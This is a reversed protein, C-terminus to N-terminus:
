IEPGSIGFKPTCPKWSLTINVREKGTDFDGIGAFEACYRNIFNRNQRLNLEILNASIQQLDPIAALKNRRFDLKQLNIIGSFALSSVNVIENYYFNLEEINVHGAFINPGLSTLKNTSLNLITVNTRIDAFPIETLKQKKLTVKLAWIEHSSCLLLLIGLLSNAKMIGITFWNTWFLVNKVSLHNEWIPQQEVNM